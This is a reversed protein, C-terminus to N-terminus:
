RAPRRPAFRERGVPDLERAADLALWREDCDVGLEALERVPEPERGRRPARQDRQVRDVEDALGCERDRPERLDEAIPRLRESLALEGRLRQDLATAALAPERRPGRVLEVARSSSSWPRPSRRRRTSISRRTAPRM